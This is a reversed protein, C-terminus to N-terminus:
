IDWTVLTHAVYFVVAPIWSKAKSIFKSLSNASRVDQTVIKWVKPALYRLSKSSYNNANTSNLSFNQRHAFITLLM